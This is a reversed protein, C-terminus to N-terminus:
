VQNQNQQSQGQGPNMLDLYFYTMTMDMYPVLWLYGICCSFLSVVMLPLFSMEIYFLRGKHGKMLQMSKRVTEGPSLDPFDLALYFSQSISLSLPVYLLMGLVWSGIMLLMNLSSDPQTVYVSSFFQYPLLTFFQVAAFVTSIKLFKSMQERFGYFLDTESYNQNCAINLFFFSIGANLVGLVVSAGFSLAMSFILAGIGGIPAFFFFFLNVGMNILMSLFVTLIVIGYKGLLKDKAMDKLQASSKYQNM